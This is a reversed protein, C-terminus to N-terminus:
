NKRKTYKIEMFKAFDKQGDTQVFERVTRTGDDNFQTELRMKLPKGDAPNESEAHFTLTKTKEDYSGQLTDIRTSMSDVWTAIYQGKKVDYGNQGHGEFPSGLFDGKFDSILWKGGLMRNTEVGKSNAPTVKGDPGPMTITVDADWVGEQMALVKMATQSDSKSEQAELPLAFCALGAAVSVFLTRKM